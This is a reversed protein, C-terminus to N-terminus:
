CHFVFPFFDTHYLKSFKLLCWPFSYYLMVQQLQGEIQLSFLVALFCFHQEENDNFFYNQSKIM